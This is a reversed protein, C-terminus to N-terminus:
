ELAKVKILFLKDWEDKLDSMMDSYFPPANTPVFHMVEWFYKHNGTGFVELKEQDVSLVAVQHYGQRVDLTFFLIESSSVVFFTIAYDCRQIPYQFPKVIM